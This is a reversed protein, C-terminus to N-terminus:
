LEDFKHPFCIMDTYDNVEIYSLDYLPRRIM